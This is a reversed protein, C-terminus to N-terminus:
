STAPARRRIRGPGRPSWVKSSGPLPHNLELSRQLLLCLEDPRRELREIGRIAGSLLAIVMPDVFPGTAAAGLGASRARRARTACRSNSTSLSTAQASTVSVRATVERTARRQRRTKPHVRAAPMAGMTGQRPRKGSSDNRLIPRKIRNGHPPAPRLKPGQLPPTVFRQGSGRVIM